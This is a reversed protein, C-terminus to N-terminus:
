KGSKNKPNTFTWDCKEDNPIDYDHDEDHCPNIKPEVLDEADVPCCNLKKFDGIRGINDVKVTCREGTVPSYTMNEEHCVNLSGKAGM